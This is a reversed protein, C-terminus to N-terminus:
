VYAIWRGAFAIALWFLLLVASAVRDGPAAREGSRVQRRALWVAFAVTPVILLLKIQFVRNVLERTPEALVLLSGSALLLALAIWLRGTLKRGWDGVTWHTGFLQYSRLSLLVSGSLVFAIALIHVSQALPIAFPNDKLAVSPGTADLWTAFQDLSM